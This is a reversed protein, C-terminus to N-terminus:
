ARVRNAWMCLYRATNRPALWLSRDLAPDAEQATWRNLYIIQGNPGIIYKRDCVPKLVEKWTTLSQTAVGILWAAASPSTDEIEDRRIPPYGGPQRFYNRNKVFDEAYDEYGKHRWDGFLPSNIFNAAHMPQCLDTLYHLSLGLRHFAQDHRHSGERYLRVSEDFTWSGKTVANERYWEPPWPFSHGTDPNYFHYYYMAWLPHQPMWDSDYDADLLGAAIRRHGRDWMESVFRAEATPNEMHRLYHVAMEVIRFHTYDNWVLAEDDAAGPASSTSAHTHGHTHGQGHRHAHAPGCCCTHHEGPADADASDPLVPRFCLRTAAELAPASASLRFETEPDAALFRDQAISRIGFHTDTDAGRVIQFTEAAGREGSVLSLRGDAGVSVWELSDPVRLALLDPLLMLLRLPEAGTAAIRLSAIGGEGRELVIGRDDRDRIEVLMESHVAAQAVDEREM